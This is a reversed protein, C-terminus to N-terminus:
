RGEIDVHLNPADARGLAVRIEREKWPEFLDLQETSDLAFASLSLGLIAAESPPLLRYLRFAAAALEEAALTPRPMRCHRERSVGDAYDVTLELGRARVAERAMRRSLRKALALCATRSKEEPAGELKPSGSDRVLEVVKEGEVGLLARAESPALRALADLTRVGASRLRSVQEPRLDDLEEVPVGDILDKERGPMWQLVGRPGALRAALRAAISTAAIGVSGELGLESSITDCLSAGWDLPSSPKDSLSWPPEGEFCAEGAAPLRWGTAYRALLAEFASTFAVLQEVPQGRCTDLFGPVLVQVYTSPARELSM